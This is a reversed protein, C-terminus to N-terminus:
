VAQPMLSRLSMKRIEREATAHSEAVTAREDTRGRLLIPEHM